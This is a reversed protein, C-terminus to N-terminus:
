QHAEATRIADACMQAITRIPVWGTKRANHPDALLISPEDRQDASPVHKFPVVRGLAREMAVRVQLVSSGTGTGVNLVCTPLDPVLRAVLAALDLVHLYDRVLSGDATDDLATDMEFPHEPTSTLMGRFPCDDSPCSLGGNLLSGYLRPCRLRLVQWDSPLQELLREAVDHLAGDRTRPIACGPWDTERWAGLRANQGGYVGVSSVYVLRRPGHCEMAHLVATLSGIHSRSASAAPARSSPGGACVVVDFPHTSMLRGVAGHDLAPCLPHLPIVSGAAEDLRARAAPTTHALDDLIEVDHGDQLLALTIHSGPYCAGGCVLVRMGILDRM